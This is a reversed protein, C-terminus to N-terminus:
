ADLEVHRHDRRTLALFAVAMMTIVSLMILTIVLAIGRESTTCAKLQEPTEKRM